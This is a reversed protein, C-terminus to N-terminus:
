ILRSSSFNEHCDIGSGIRSTFVFEAFRPNLTELTSKFEIVDQYRLYVFPLMLHTRHKILYSDCAPCSKFCATFVYERGEFVESEELWQSCTSCDTIESRTIMEHNRQTMDESREKSKGNLPKNCSICCRFKQVCNGM